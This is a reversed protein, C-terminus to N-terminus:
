RHLVDRVTEVVQDVQQSTLALGSPLYLGQRASRETVPFRLGPEVWGQEVLAPQEHLGLFFPRTGVGRAGLESMFGAADWGTDPDLETRGSTLRVDGHRALERAVDRVHEM